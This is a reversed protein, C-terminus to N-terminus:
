DHCLAATLTRELWTTYASVSLGRDTVLLDYTEHSALAWLTDAVAEPTLGARLGRSPVGAAVQEMTRRRDAKLAEWDVALEPDSAMAQRHMRWYLATREAVAAFVGSVAALYDPASANVGARQRLQARIQARWEDPEVPLPAAVAAVAVAATFLARKSGWALYLTQLSVGARAAIGVVTTAQYGDARFLEDAAVLLRRRTQERRASAAARRRQYPDAVQQM